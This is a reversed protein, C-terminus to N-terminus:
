RRDGWHLMLCVRVGRSLANCFISESRWFYLDKKIGQKKNRTQLQRSQHSRKRFFQGHGLVSGLSKDFVKERYIQENENHQFIIFPCFYHLENINTTIKNIRNIQNTNVKFASIWQSHGCYNKRPYSLDEAWGMNQLHLEIM